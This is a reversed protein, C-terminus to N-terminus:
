GTCTDDLVDGVTSKPELADHLERRARLGADSTIVSGRFQVMLRRNSDFRFIEGSSGPEKAAPLVCVRSVPVVRTRRLRSDPM